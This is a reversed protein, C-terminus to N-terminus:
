SVDTQPIVPMWRTSLGSGILKCVFGQDIIKRYHERGPATHISSNHMAFFM